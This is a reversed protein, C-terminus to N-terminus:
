YKIDGQSVLALYPELLTTKGAAMLAQIGQEKTKVGAVVNIIEAKTSADIPIKQQVQRPAGAPKITLYDIRHFGTAKGGKDVQEVVKAFIKLGKKIYDSPKIKMEPTVSYGLKQIITVVKSQFEPKDPNITFKDIPVSERIIIGTQVETWSLKAYSATWNKGIDQREEPTLSDLTKGRIKEPAKNSVIVNKQVEIETLNLNM